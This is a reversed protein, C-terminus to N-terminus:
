KIHLIRLLFLVVVIVITIKEIWKESKIFRRVMLVVLGVLILIYLYHIFNYITM